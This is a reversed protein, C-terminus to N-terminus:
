ASRFDLLDNRGDAGEDVLLGEKGEADEGEEIKKKLFAGLSASKLGVDGHGGMVAEAMAKAQAKIADGKGVHYALSDEEDDRIHQKVLGLSKGAHALGLSQGMLHGMSGETTGVTAATAQAQQKSLGLGPLAQAFSVAYGANAATVKATVTNYPTTTSGTTTSGTTPKIWSKSAEPKSSSTAAAISSATTTSSHDSKKDGRTKCKMGNWVSGPTGPIFECASM